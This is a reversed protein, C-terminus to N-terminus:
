EASQQPQSDEIGLLEVEFVLTSAPPIGANDGFAPKEQDGYALEPPVVLKIKGGVGILQIGETWGAIVGKLPFKTPEGRDYSSDFKKGDVLTGTYHVIVTDDATPHKGTGEDIVEYLLGSETQKTTPQQAFDARFKDGAAVSTSKETEFREKAETQLRKDLETLVYQIQQQNFKAKDYFGDSFGKIVEDSNLTVHGKELNNKLYNGFSAGVAYAENEANIEVTTDTNTNQTAAPATTSTTNDKKDDCGALALVIASGILTMKLLSKM